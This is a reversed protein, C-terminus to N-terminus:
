QSPTPPTTPATPNVAVTRTPSPSAPSRAETPYKTVPRRSCAPPGAVQDFADFRDIGLAIWCIRFPITLSISAATPRIAFHLFQRAAESM